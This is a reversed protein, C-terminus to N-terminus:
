VGVLKKSPVTEAACCATSTSTALSKFTLQNGFVTVSAKPASYRRSVYLM